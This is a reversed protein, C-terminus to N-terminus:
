ISRLGIKAKLSTTNHNLQMEQAIEFQKKFTIKAQDKEQKEVHTQRVQSYSSENHLPDSRYSYRVTGERTLILETQNM